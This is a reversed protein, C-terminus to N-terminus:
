SFREVYALSHLHASIIRFLRKLRRHWSDWVISQAGWGAIHQAQMSFGHFASFDGKKKFKEIFLINKGQLLM